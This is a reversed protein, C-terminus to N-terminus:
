SDVPNFDCRRIVRSALCLGTAENQSNASGLLQHPRVGVGTRRLVRLERYRGPGTDNSCGEPKMQRAGCRVNEGHTVSGACKMRVFGLRRRFGFRRRFTRSIGGMIPSREGAGAARISAAPSPVISSPRSRLFQLRSLMMEMLRGKRGPLFEDSSVSQTRPNPARQPSIRRRLKPSRKRTM